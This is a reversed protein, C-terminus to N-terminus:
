VRSVRPENGTGVLPLVRLARRLDHVFERRSRDDVGNGRDRSRASIGGQDIRGIRDTRVRRVGIPLGPSGGCVSGLTHTGHYGSDYPNGHNGNYPDLFAWEPNGGYEPRLGAWRSALTPHSGDVGTDLNAVLVGSGDYGLDWCEPARVAEVGPEPVAGRAIIPNSETLDPSVPGVLEIPHDLYMLMVDDHEALTRLAPVTAEVQVFELDLVCPPRGDDMGM